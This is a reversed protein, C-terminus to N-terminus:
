AYVPGYTPVDPGTMLPNSEGGPLRAYGGNYTFGSSAGGTGGLGKLTRDTIYQNGAQGIAGAVGAVTNADIGAMTNGQNIAINGKATAANGVAAAQGAAAGQGIQIPQLLEQLRQSYTNDALGTSYDTIGKLQQGTLNFGQVGAARSTNEIGQDRTFQYGPLSELTKQVGAAGDAGGTLLDQYTPIAATGLDRYPQSLEKQQALAKDQESAAVNAGHKTAKAAKHGAVTTATASAVGAGAIALAVCM